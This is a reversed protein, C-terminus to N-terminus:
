ICNCVATQRPPSVVGYIMQFVSALEEYPTIYMPRITQVLAVMLGIWIWWWVILLRVVAM